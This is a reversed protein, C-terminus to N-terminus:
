QADQTTGLTFRFTAGEGVNGTAWIRGGHKEVVRKVITLGVGTGAFEAQSHLRQFTGFLKDALNMDFGAGNDRVVFCKTGDLGQECFFEIRAVPTQATFKWANGILNQVVALLLRPDGWTFLDDEIRVEVHRDPNNERCRAEVLRAITSLNTREYNLKQKSLQALALLGEIIEGMVRSGDQIRSLYHHGKPSIAGGDLKELLKSFGAITGLPSRLDHSVSYSFSELEENALQLEATRQQVKIDLDANLALIELEARKRESIDREVAVWHTFWGTEDAIPVIDLELWFEEGSKTYNILEARIPCWKELSARIRDLEARQTKPGQLLKPSKGIVEERTFGTMKEFAENVFVIRPGEDIPEAETIVVIDNLRSVATQLLQLQTQEARRETIDQFSGQIRVIEGRQDRVAQGSARVTLRNGRATILQLELDYPTGLNICSQVADAILRASKPEFYRIAQEVNPVVGLPLEHIMFVEDSWTLVLDPLTVEWAGMRSLRSAMTLLSQTRRLAEEALRQDTVNEAVRVMLKPKGDAYNMVSISIRIWVTSGSKTLYRKEVVASARKGELLDDEVVQLHPWDDPHILCRPSLHLLEDETYGLLACFSANVQVFPGGAVTIAIGTAAGNFTNRFREESERLANSQHFQNVALAVVRCLRDIVLLEDKLPARVSKYSVGFTAVVKNQADMVPVSWCAKLDYQKALDRFNSWLPNTSIDDVIVPTKSFAATGCSGVAPGIRLNLLTERYTDPLSPSVSTQLCTGDASVLHVSGLAGTILEEVGLLVKELVQELPQGRAIMQLVDAELSVIIESQRRQTIDTMVGIFHLPEGLESRILSVSLNAWVVRGDRHVYRKEWSPSSTEDNMMGEILDEDFARDEPHTAEVGTLSELEVDSRGVIKNFRDNTRIFRGTLDVLCMGAPAHQFVSSVLLESHAKADEALKLDTSGQVTGSLASPGLLHERLSGPHSLTQGLKM